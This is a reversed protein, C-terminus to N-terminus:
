TETRSLRPMQTDTQSRLERLRVPQTPARFVAFGLSKLFVKTELKAQDDPRYLLLSRGFDPEPQDPIQKPVLAFHRRISAGQISPEERFGLHSKDPM